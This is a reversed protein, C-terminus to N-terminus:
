AGTSRNPRLVEEPMDSVLIFRDVRWSKKLGELCLLAASGAPKVYTVRYVQYLVLVEADKTNDGHRADDLCLVDKGVYPHPEKVEPM